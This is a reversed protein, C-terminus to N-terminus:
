APWRAPWTRSTGARAAPSRRRHRHREDVGRPAGAGHDRHRRRHVLHCTGDVAAPIRRNRSCSTADGVESMASPRTTRPPPRRRPRESSSSASRSRSRLVRRRVRHGAGPDAPTGGGRHAASRRPRRAHPQGGPPFRHRSRPTARAAPGIAAARLRSGLEASSRKICPPAITAPEAPDIDIAAHGRACHLATRTRRAGTSRGCPSALGGRISSSSISGLAGSGSGSGGRALESASLPERRLLELMRIRTPHALARM